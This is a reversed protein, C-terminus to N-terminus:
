ISGSVPHIQRTGTARPHGERRQILQLSYRGDSARVLAVGRGVPQYCAGTFVAFSRALEFDIRSTYSEDSTPTSPSASAM